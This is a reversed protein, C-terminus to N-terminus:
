KDTGNVPLQFPKGSLFFRVDVGASCARAYGAVIDRAILRGSPIRDKGEVTGERARLIVYVVSQSGENSATKAFTVM